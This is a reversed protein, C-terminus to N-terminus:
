QLLVFMYYHYYTKYVSSEYNIIKKRVFREINWSFFSHTIIIVYREQSTVTTTNPFVEKQYTNTYMGVVM